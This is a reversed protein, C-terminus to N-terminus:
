RPPSAARLLSELCSKASNLAGVMQELSALIELRRQLLGKRKKSSTSAVPLAWRRQKRREREKDGVAVLPRHNGRRKRDRYAPGAPVAGDAPGGQVSDLPRAPEIADGDDRADHRGDRREDADEDDEDDGDSDADDGNEDEDVKAIGDAADAENEEEVSAPEIENMASNDEALEQRVEDILRSLGAIRSAVLELAAQLRLTDSGDLPPMSALSTEPECEASQKLADLAVAHFNIPPVGM